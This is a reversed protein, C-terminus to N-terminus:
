PTVQVSYDPVVVQPMTPDTQMTLQPITTVVKELATIRSIADSLASEMKGM